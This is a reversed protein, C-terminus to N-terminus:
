TPTPFRPPFVCCSQASLAHVSWHLNIFLLQWKFDMVANFKFYSSRLFSALRPHFLFDWVNSAALYTPVIKEPLTLSELALFINIDESETM